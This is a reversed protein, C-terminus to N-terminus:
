DYKDQLGWTLKALAAEGEDWFTISSEFVSMHVKASPAHDKLWSAFSPELIQQHFKYQPAPLSIRLESPIDFVLNPM